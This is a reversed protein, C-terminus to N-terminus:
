RDGGRRDRRHDRHPPQGRIKEESELVGEKGYGYAKKPRALIKKIEGGLKKLAKLEEEIKLRELATLRQLKLDLIAQAQIKSLDFKKMLGERAEDPNKSKKILNVIADINGVCIVLGELIHAQEEAKRLDYKARRTVVEERHKLYEVMMERLNLLKPEGNVLAVLNVGFTTQLNTHKFLQNLVVDRTADRKLEIYIRM